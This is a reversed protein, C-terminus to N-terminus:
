GSVGNLVSDISHALERPREIFSAHGCNEFYSFFKVAGGKKMSEIMSLTLFADSDSGILHIPTSGELLTSNDPRTMMAHLCSIIGEPIMKEVDKIWDDIIFKLRGYNDKSVLNPMFSTAITLLKGSRILDMERLRNAKKEDSDAYVHSHLLGLLRIRTPDTQVMAQAVYGGMSHGYVVFKDYGLQDLLKFIQKAIDDMSQMERVMESNGHGPVDILILPRKKFHNEVFGEFIKMSELYGHLFVVPVGDGDYRRYAVKRGNITKQEM